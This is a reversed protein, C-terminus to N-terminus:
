IHILSLGVGHVVISGNNFGCSEPTLEILDCTLQPPENITINCIAVCQNADRVNIVYDGAELNAFDSDDQWFGGNLNYDYPPTGGTGTINITGSQDAFCSLDEAVASCTLLTPETVTTGFARTCNNADRVIVEHFGSDIGFFVHGSQWPGGDLSYEYGPTGETAVRDRICM